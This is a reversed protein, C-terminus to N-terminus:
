KGAPTPTPGLVSLLRRHANQTTAGGNCVRDKHEGCPLDRDTFIRAGCPRKYTMLDKCHRAHDLGYAHAIEMGAVECSHKLSQKLTRTFIFVVANSIPEGSFPALGTAHSHGHGDEGKAGMGLDSVRGGLVAMIYDEGVPRREEVRVDYRAFKSRICKAIASWRRATGRFAPITARQGPSRGVISSVNLSADDPGGRLSAGERNLYILRTPEPPGFLNRAAHVVGPEGAPPEASADTDEKPSGLLGAIRQRVGVGEESSLALGALLGVTSMVLVQGLARALRGAVAM